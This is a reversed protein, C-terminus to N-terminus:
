IQFNSNLSSMIVNVVMKTVRTLADIPAMQHWLGIDNLVTNLIKLYYICSAYGNRPM